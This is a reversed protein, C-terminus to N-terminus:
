RRALIIALAAIALVALAFASPEPVAIHNFVTGDVITTRDGGLPNTTRFRLEYSTKSAVFDSSARLAWITNTVSDTHYIVEETGLGEDLVVSLDNGSPKATRYSEYFTLNYTHGIEFGSIQQYFSTVNQLYAFQNGLPDPSNNNAKWPSNPGALNLGTWKVESKESETMDGWYHYGNSGQDFVEFGSNLIIPTATAPPSLWLCGIVLIAAFAWRHGWPLRAPKNVMVPKGKAERLAFRQCV